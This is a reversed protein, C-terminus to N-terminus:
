VLLITPLTLHTYSVSQPGYLDLKGRWVTHPRLNETDFAFQIDGLPIVVTRTAKPMPAHRILQGPPDNAPTVKKAQGLAQSYVAFIGILVYILKTLMTYSCVRQGFFPSLEISDSPFPSPPTVSPIRVRLLWFQKRKM